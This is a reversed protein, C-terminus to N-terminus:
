IEESKNGRKARAAKMREAAKIKNEESVKKKPSPFKIWEAPFVLYISGDQNKVLMTEQPHAEALKEAKNCFARMSTTLSAQKNGELYCISLEKEGAFLFEPIITQKIKKM